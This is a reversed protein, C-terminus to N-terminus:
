SSFYNTGLCSKPRWIVSLGPTTHLRELLRSDETAISNFDGGAVVINSKSDSALFQSVGAMVRKIHPNAASPFHM